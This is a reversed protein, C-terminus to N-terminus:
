PLFEAAYYDAPKGREAAALGGFQTLTDLSEDLLSMDMQFPRRGAADSARYLAQSYQLSRLQAEPLGIRPYAALLLDTAGKADKEADEVARTTARMFRKVLDPKGRMTANSAIIGLSVLNVGADTYRFMSVPKNMIDPLRAGQETTFGILGDAQGNVVANLKTQADGAVMRVANEALGIKRLYLPWFPTVADGPTFAITKGALDKPDKIKGEPAVVAGPTRQLLIGVSKLPAGKSVARIMVSVDALGFTATGAGAAQITVASGRGEQIELDIGEERYFGKRVGVVFPAHEGYVYWNLMLVAKDGAQASATRIAPMALASAMLLRRNLM